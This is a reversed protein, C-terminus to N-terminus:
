KVPIPAFSVLGATATRLYKCKVARVSLVWVAPSQLVSGRAAFDRWSAEGEQYNIQKADLLNTRLVCEKLRAENVNRFKCIGRNRDSVASPPVNANCCVSLAIHHGDTTLQVRLVVEVMRSNSSPRKSARDKRIASTEEM